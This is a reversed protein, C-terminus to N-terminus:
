CLSSVTIICYMQSGDTYYEAIDTSYLVIQAKRPSGNAIDGCNDINPGLKFRKCPWSAFIHFAEM